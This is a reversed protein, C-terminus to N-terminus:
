IYHKFANFLSKTARNSYSADLQTLHAGYRYRIMTGSRAVHLDRAQHKQCFLSQLSTMYMNLHQEDWM